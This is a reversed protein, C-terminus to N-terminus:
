KIISELLPRIRENPWDPMPDQLHRHLCMTDCDWVYERTRAARPPLLLLSHDHHHCHHHHEHQSTAISISHSLLHKPPPPAQNSTTTSSPSTCSAQSLAAIYPHTHVPEPRDPTPSRSYDSEEEIGVMHVDPQDQYLLSRAIPLTNSLSFGSFSPFLVTASFVLTLHSEHFHKHRM